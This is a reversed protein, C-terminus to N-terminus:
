EETTMILITRYYNGDKEIFNLKHLRKLYKKLYKTKLHVKKAIQCPMKKQSLQLLIDDYKRQVRRSVTPSIQLLKYKQALSLQLYGQFNDNTKVLMVISCDDTTTNVIVDQFSRELQEQVTASSVIMATKMIKKLIEAPKRERKDYLSVETGDSMLVFGEIENIAGKILRMTVIADSSTTFVTTNVFEGNTPASGLKMDDNKLYGIVGDGIHAIIFRGDKVAVFLLTSALDKLDCELEIAKKRLKETLGGIIQRKVAIGDSDDYYADFKELLESCIHKTVTEAGFHSLKATGAGDALAIAWIDKGTMSYTKDQCPINSSLHGRGQVACQIIKWM